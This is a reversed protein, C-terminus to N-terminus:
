NGFNGVRSRLGTEYFQNGRHFGLTSVSKHTRWIPESDTATAGVVNAEVFTAAKEYADYHKTELRKRLRRTEVTTATWDTKM